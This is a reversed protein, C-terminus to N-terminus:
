CSSNFKARYDASVVEGVGYNAVIKKMQPLDSVIVPVGAMIYEFLKNPLAFYYSKSINEILAVGIDAARTYELLKHNDIMGLFFVRESVGSDEAAKTFKGRFVGEGILVLVCDSLEKLSEIIIQLGRGELLVGQYLLIKFNNKIGLKTRLDIKEKNDNYKPLNRLVITNDIKYTDRLFDADMEGTTIVFDVKKIFFKEIGKIVAQLVKRDRLGGLYAYLERSDYLVRGRRLKAFFVLFPLTYIDEAFYDHSKYRLLDKILLYVFKTYFGLSFKGKNINHVKFEPIEDASKEGLWSFGTVHVKFGDTRFSNYLNFVRSDFYPNGLFAIFVYKPSQKSYDMSCM